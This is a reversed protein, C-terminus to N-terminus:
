QRVLELAAAIRHRHEVQPHRRRLHVDVHVRGLPLDAEPVLAGHVPQHLPRHQGGQAARPGERDRQLGDGGGGLRAPLHGEVLRRDGQCGGRHFRRSRLRHPGQPLDQLAVQHRLTWLPDHQHVLVGGVLPHEVVPKQGPQAAGLRRALRQEQRLRHLELGREGRGGRVM